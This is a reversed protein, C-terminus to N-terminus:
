ARIQGDQVQIVAQARRAIDPNHTVVIVTKGQSHLDLLIQMIEEEAASDLNGTPEDMMLIEPDNALARAIAVRQQQGGSLEGPRSGAKEALGVLALLERAREAQRSPPAGSLMMATEVNEAASLGRLLNFFQFVFGIKRGRFRALGASDLKGLDTGDLHVTGSSPRDLAGLLHMLTSKGHGSPGVIATFSGRPIELDVGRLAHTAAAGRGYSKTLKETRIISNSM